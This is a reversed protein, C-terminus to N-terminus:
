FGFIMAMAISKGTTIGADAFSLNGFGNTVLAQGSSGVTSLGTGGNIVPVVGTLDLTIAGAANTVAINQGATLTGLAYGAGNGILLQGNTPTSATGTGGNGVGLTGNVHTTLGIKGWSPATGVGGSILANGTAVDALKSLASTTSAYLLDGVAYSSQGTGGNGAILTGALTVAGTTATSPSASFNKRIIM